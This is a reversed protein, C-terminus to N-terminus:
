NAESKKFAVAISMAKLLILFRVLAASTQNILEPPVSETMNIGLNASGKMAMVLCPPSQALWWSMRMLPLPQARANCGRNM